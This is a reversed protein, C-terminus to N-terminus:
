ITEIDPIEHGYEWNMDYSLYDNNSLWELLNLQEKTIKVYNRLDRCDDYFTYDLRCENATKPLEMEIPSNGISSPYSRIYKILQENAGLMKMVEGGKAAQTRDSDPMIVVARGCQVVKLLSNNNLNAANMAKILTQDLSDGGFAANLNAHWTTM